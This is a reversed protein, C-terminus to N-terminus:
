PKPEEPKAPEPKAPEPKAAEPKAAEPSKPPESPKTALEPNKTLKIFEPDERLSEFDPDTRADKKLTANLGIARELNKLAGAQDGLLAQYCAMNYFPGGRNPTPEASKSAYYLAEQLLAKDWPKGVQALRKLIRGKEFLAQSHSPKLKLVLDVLRLSDDIRGENVLTRAQAVLEWLEDVLKERGLLMRVDPFYHLSTWVYGILFGV